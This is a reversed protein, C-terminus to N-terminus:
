MSMAFKSCHGMEGGEWICDSIVWAEMMEFVTVTLSLPCLLFLMAIETGYYSRFGRVPLLAMVEM